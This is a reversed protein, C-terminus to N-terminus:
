QLEGRASLKGSSVRLQADTTSVDGTGDLLLGSEKKKKSEKKGKAKHQVISYIMM